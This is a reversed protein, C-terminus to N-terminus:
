AVAARSVPFRIIASSLFPVQFQFMSVIQAALTGRIVKQHLFCM